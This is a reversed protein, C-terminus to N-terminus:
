PKVGLAARAALCEATHGEHRTCWCWGRTSCVHPAALALGYLADALAKAHAEAREPWLVLRRLAWLIPAGFILLLCCGLALRMM